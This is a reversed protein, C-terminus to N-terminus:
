HAWLIRRSSSMARTTVHLYKQHSYAAVAFCVAGLLPQNLAFLMYLGVLGLLFSNARDRLGTKWIMLWKGLYNWRTTMNLLPREARAYASTVRIEPLAAGDMEKGPMRESM